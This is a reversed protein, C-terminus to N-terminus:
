AVPTRTSFVGRETAIWDVTQDWPDIPISPLVFTSFCLGVSIGSFDQHSLVRDYYGGGMGLRAGEATFALGPVLLLDIQHFPILPCHAQPEPINWVGPTMDQTRDNVSAFELQKNRIRPYAITLGHRLLANHVSQTNVEYLPADLGAYLGVCTAEQVIPHQSLHNAISESSLCRFAAALAARKTGLRARLVDKEM